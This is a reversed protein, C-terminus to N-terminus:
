DAAIAHLYGAASAVVREVYNESPAANLRTTDDVGTEMLYDNAARVSTHSLLSTQSYVLDYSLEWGIERPIQRTNSGHWNGPRVLNGKHEDKWFKWRQQVRRAEAEIREQVEPHQQIEQRVDDFEALSSKAATRSFEYRTVWYYDLWRQGRDEGPDLKMYRVDIALELLTRLLVAADEGYGQGCLILIARHTKHAKGLAFRVMQQAPTSSELPKFTLWPEITTSLRRGHSFLQQWQPLAALDLIQDVLPATV